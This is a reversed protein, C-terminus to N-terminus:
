YWSSTMGQVSRHSPKLKLTYILFDLWFIATTTISNSRYKTVRDYAITNMYIKQVIGLVHCNINLMELEKWLKEKPITNCMKEFDVFTM